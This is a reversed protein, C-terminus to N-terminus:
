AERQGQGRGNSGEMFRAFPVTGDVHALTIKLSVMLPVAILAGAVGWLWGWVIVSVFVILPSLSLRKGLILPTFLAGELSTLLVFVGPVLLAHTLDSFTAAGVLTLVIMSVVAGVYPAFNLIAVMTGWLEPNPVNLAWMALGVAIGLLTNIVLVTGLHRSLEDQVARSVRIIQRKTKWRKGFTLIRKAIIDGSALLFFATFLTVMLSALFTPAGKVVRDLANPNKIEVAQPKPQESKIETMEGVQEGLEKIDELPQKLEEFERAVQRLNSPSERLWEKAPDILVYSAAVLAALIALLFVGASLSAPVRHRALRQVLPSLLLYLLIAITIPILVAKAFHLTYLIAIILLAKTALNRRQTTPSNGRRAHRSHPDRGGTAM